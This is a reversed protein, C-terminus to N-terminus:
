GISGSSGRRIFEGSVRSRLGAYTETEITAPDFSNLNGQGISDLDGTIPPPTPAPESFGIGDTPAVNPFTGIRGIGDTPALTGASM